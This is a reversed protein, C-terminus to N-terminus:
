IAQSERNASCLRGKRFTGIMGLYSEVAVNISSLEPAPVVVSYSPQAPHVRARQEHDNANKPGKQDTEPRKGGTKPTEAGGGQKANDPGASIRQRMFSAMLGPGSLGNCAAM